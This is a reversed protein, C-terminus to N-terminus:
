PIRTAAGSATTDLVTGGPSAPIALSAAHLMLALM